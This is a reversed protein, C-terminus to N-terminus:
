VGSSGDELVTLVWGSIKQIWVQHSAFSRFGFKSCLTMFCDAVSGGVIALVVFCFRGGQRVGSLWGFFICLALIQRDGLFTVSVRYNNLLSQHYGKYYTACWNQWLNYLGFLFEELNPSKNDFIIRNRYNWISWVM